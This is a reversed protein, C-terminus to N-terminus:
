FHLIHNCLTSVAHQKWTDRISPRKKKHVVAEQMDELSPHQGVEEEFPLMHEPIPGQLCVYLINLVENVLIEQWFYFPLFM